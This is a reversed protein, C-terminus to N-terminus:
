AQLPPPRLFRQLHWSPLNSPPPILFVGPVLPQRHLPPAYLFLAAIWVLAPVGSDVAPPVEIKQGSVWLKSATSPTIKVPAGGNYMATKAHLAFFFVLLCLAVSLAHRPAKKQVVRPNVSLLL